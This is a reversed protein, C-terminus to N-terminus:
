RYHTPRNGSLGYSAAMKNANILKPKSHTSIISSADHSMRGVLSRTGMITTTPINSTHM